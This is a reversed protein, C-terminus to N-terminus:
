TRREKVADLANCRQCGPRWNSEVMRLDPRLRISKVHMVVTAKAGCRCTENGPLALFAKAERQWDASYGRQRANPRIADHRANRARRAAKQCECLVGHPVIKGCNCLHPPRPPRISM